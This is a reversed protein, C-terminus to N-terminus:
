ESRLRRQVVEVMPQLEPDAGKWLEIFRRYHVAADGAAGRADFIRGLRQEAPAVYALEYTAREAMSQYWGIAEDSRGVVRLLEARFFRDSAEAVSQGATREWGAAELQALAEAPRRAASRIHAILARGHEVRDREGLPGQPLFPEAAV